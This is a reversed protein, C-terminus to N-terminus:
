PKDGEPLAYALDPPLWGQDAALRAALAVVPAKQAPISGSYGLEATLIAHIRAYPLRAFYASRDFREEIARRLAEPNLAACLARVMRKRGIETWQKPDYQPHRLDVLRGILHGYALGQGNVEDEFAMEWPIADLSPDPANPGWTEVKINLPSRSGYGGAVQQRLTAMLAALAIAADQSVAEAVALSLIEAMDERLKFNVKPEPDPVAALPAYAKADRAEDDDGVPEGYADTEPEAENDNAKMEDALFWRHDFEGELNIGVIVGGKPWSSPMGLMRELVAAKVMLKDNWDGEALKVKEEPRAWPTIDIVPWNWARGGVDKETRAWKWGESMLRKCENALKEEELRMLLVPNLVLRDETFLDDSYEGGALEYAEAGVFKFTASSQLHQTALVAHRLRDPKRTWDDKAREWVMNQTAHDRNASLAAAQDADMKGARWLKLIEPALKALQLRQGVWKVPVGFRVAIEPQTLGKDVLASYQHYEDVPHLNVRQINDILAIEDLDDIADDMIIVPVDYNRDQKYLRNLARLRRGGAHVVFKGKEGKKVILPNLVGHIPISAVLDDIPVRTIDSRANPGAVLKTLKVTTREM